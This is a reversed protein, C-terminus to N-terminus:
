KRKAASLHLAASPTRTPVLQYVVSFMLTALIAELGGSTIQEGAESPLSTLPWRAESGRMWFALEPLAKMEKFEELITVNKVFCVWM